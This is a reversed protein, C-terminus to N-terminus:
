SCVVTSEASRCYIWVLSLMWLGGTVASGVVIAWAAGTARYFPILCLAPVLTAVLSVSNIFPVLRVSGFKMVFPRCLNVVTESIILLILIHLLRISEDGFGPYLIHIIHAAFLRLGIPCIITGFLLIALLQMKASKSLDHMSTYSSIVSLLLASICIIPALFIYAVSTAAVLDATDKFGHISGLIIRNLYPGAFAIIGAITIQLWVQKLVSAKQEDYSAKFWQRYRFRLAVYVCVNGATFGWAMGVLGGLTAGLIGTLVNFISRVLFWIARARFRRRFRSETLLLHTQNESYLSLTLPILCYLVDRQLLPVSGLVALLMLGALVVIVMARHCLRMAIGCLQRRGAEDYDSLHRLLGTALGNGPQMGIISTIAFAFVFVGFSEKGVLYAAIPWFVLRPIAMVSAQEAFTWFMYGLNRKLSNM